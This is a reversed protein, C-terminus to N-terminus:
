ERKELLLNIFLGNGVANELRLLGATIATVIGNGDMRNRALRDFWRRRVRLGAKSAALDLGQRSFFALHHAEHTRRAPYSFRGGSLRYALRGLAPVVSHEHITQLYIVGKPALRQSLETLVAVPDPLHEFVDWLTILSFPGEVSALVTGADGTHVRAWPARARAQAARESDLEVGEIRASPFARHAFTLFHGTGCGVDLINDVEVSSQRLERELVQWKELDSEANQFYHQPEFSTAAGRVLADSSWCGCQGCEFLRYESVDISPVATAGCIPCRDGGQTTLGSM